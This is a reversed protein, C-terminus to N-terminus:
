SLEFSIFQNNEVIAIYFVLQQWCEQDIHADIAEFSRLTVLAFTSFIEEMGASSITPALLLHLRDRVIGTTLCNTELNQETDIFIFLNNTISEISKVALKIHLTFLSFRIDIM